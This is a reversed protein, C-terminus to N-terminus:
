HRSRKSVDDAERGRPQGRKRGNASILTVSAWATELESHTKGEEEALEEVIKQAEIGDESHKKLISTEREKCEEITGPLTPARLLQPSGVDAIVNKPASANIWIKTVSINLKQGGAPNEVRMTKSVSIKTQGRLVDLASKITSTAKRM